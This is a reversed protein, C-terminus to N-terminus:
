SRKADIGKTQYERPVRMPKIQSEILYLLQKRIFSENLDCVECCWAFSFLVDPNGTKRIWGKAQRSYCARVEKSEGNSGFQKGAAFFFGNWITAVAIARIDLLGKPREIDLQPAQFTV